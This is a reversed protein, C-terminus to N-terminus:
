EKVCRLQDTEIKKLEDFVALITLDNTPERSEVLKSAVEWGSDIM